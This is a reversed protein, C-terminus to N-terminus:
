GLSLGMWPPNPQTRPCHCLLPCNTHATWSRLAWRDLMVRGILDGLMADVIARLRPAVDSRGTMLLWAGGAQPGGGGGGGGGNPSEQQRPSPPPPPAPLQQQPPLGTNRKLNGWTLTM